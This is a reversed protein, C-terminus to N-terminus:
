IQSLSWWWSVRGWWGAAGLVQGAGRSREVAEVIAAGLVECAKVVLAKDEKVDDEIDGHM